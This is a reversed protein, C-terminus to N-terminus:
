FDIQNTVLIFVSSFIKSPSFKLVMCIFDSVEKRFFRLIANTSKKAANAASVMHAM